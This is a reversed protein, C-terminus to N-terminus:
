ISVSIMGHSFPAYLRSFHASILLGTLSRNVLKIQNTTQEKLEYLLGLKIDARERRSAARWWVAPDVLYDILRIPLSISIWFWSALGTVIRGCTTVCLYSRADPKSCLLFSIIQCRECALHFFFDSGSVQHARRTALM